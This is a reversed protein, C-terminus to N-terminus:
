IYEIIQGEQQQDPDIKPQIDVDRHRSRQNSLTLTTHSNGFNTMGRPTAEVETAVAGLAAEVAHHIQPRFRALARREIQLFRSPEAALV